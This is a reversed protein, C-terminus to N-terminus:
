NILTTKDFNKNEFSNKIIITLFSLFMFISAVGVSWLLSASSIVKTIFPTISTGFNVVAIVISALLGRGKEYVMSAEAIGLTVIGSCGLGVFGVSLYIFLPSKSFLFLIISITAIMSLVMLIYNTKIRGAFAIVIMRGAFIAAWFISVALSAQDIGFARFERLFTAVWTAFIAEPIVYFFLLACGLIFIINIYRDKFVDKFNIKETKEASINEKKYIKKIFFYLLLVILAILATIYYNYRWSLGKLIINSAIFPAVFNGIPYFSLFITTIRAKNNVKGELIYNTAQIWLVGAVYGLLAYLVYFLMLSRIFSLLILLGIQLLYGTAILLSRKFFRNFIISTLQGIVLGITFFTVIICLNEASHGTDKSMEILMPGLTLFYFPTIFVTLYNPLEALYDLFTDKKQM